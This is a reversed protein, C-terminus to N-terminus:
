QQLKELAEAGSLASIVSYGGKELYSTMLQLESQIDDVVLVQKM